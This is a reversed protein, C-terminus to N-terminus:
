SQQRSFRKRLPPIKRDPVERIARGARITEWQRKRPSRRAVSADLPHALERERRMGVGECAFAVPSPLGFGKRQNKPAPNRNSQTKVLVIFIQM